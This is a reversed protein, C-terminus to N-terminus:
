WGRRDLRSLTGVKEILASLLTLYRQPDHRESVIASM